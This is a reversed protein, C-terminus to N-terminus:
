AARVKREGLDCTIISWRCLRPVATLYNASLPVIIKRIICIMPCIIQSTFSFHFTFLSFDSSHNGKDGGKNRRQDKARGGYWLRHLTPAFDTPFRLLKSNPTSSFRLNSPKELTKLNINKRSPIGTAICVELRKGRVGLICRLQM